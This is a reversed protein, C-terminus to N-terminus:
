APLQRQPAQDRGTKRQHQDILRLISRTTVRTAGNLDVADLKGAKILKFLLTHGVRLARQAGKVTQLPLRPDFDWDILSRM